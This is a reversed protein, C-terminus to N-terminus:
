AELSLSYDYLEAIVAGGSEQVNRRTSASTVVFAESGGGSMPLSFSDGAKYPCPFVRGTAELTVKRIPEASNLLLVLRGSVTREANGNLETTYDLALRKVTITGNAGGMEEATGELTVQWLRVINNPPIYRIVEDSVEVSTCRVELTEWDYGEGFAARGFSKPVSFTQGPKCTPVPSDSYYSYTVNLPWAVSGGGGSGSPPTWAGGEAKELAGDLTEYATLTESANGGSGPESGSFTFARKYQKIDAM